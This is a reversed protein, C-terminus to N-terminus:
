YGNVLAGKFGYDKVCRELELAASDPHQMALAAFGAFRDPRKAIEGALLENAIRAVEAAKRSDDIRQVAPANLSLIMKEIGLEDMQALRKEQFDLLRARLDIWTAESVFGKSDGITAEIAFHEELGIKGQMM